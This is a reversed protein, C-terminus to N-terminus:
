ESQSSFASTGNSIKNLDAGVVVGLVGWHSSIKTIAMFSFSM